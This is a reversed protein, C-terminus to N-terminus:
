GTAEVGPVPDPKRLPQYETKKTWLTHLLVTLKRAVAVVASRKSRRGSRQALQLGWRRLDSDQGYHGLIYHACQVLLKRLFGNGAKTIRLQPDSDGSQRKRPVLGLYPGVDRSKRFRTPDDLTLVFAAATLSGVGSVQEVAVMAPYRKSLDRIKRDYDKIEESCTRIMRIVPQLAEILPDPLKGEVQDAFAPTSCGLLREGVSKVTSRVHNVMSTRITVLEDRAYLLILDHQAAESRHQIPALLRPSCHALMALKAADNRDTKNDAKTIYALERPNAVLVEHGLRTLLRSVWPSHTGAELAIRAKPGAAFQQEFALKTTKVEGTAIEDGRSDLVCFRSKKDGLDIGITRETM